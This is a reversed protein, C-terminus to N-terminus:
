SEKGKATSTSKAAVPKGLVEEVRPGSEPIDPLKKVTSYEANRSHEFLDLEGNSKAESM